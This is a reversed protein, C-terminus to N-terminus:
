VSSIILLKSFGSFGHFGNHNIKVCRRLPEVRRFGDRLWHDLKEEWAKGPTYEVGDLIVDSYRVEDPDTIERKLKLKPAFSGLPTEIRYGKAHGYWVHKETPHYRCSPGSSLSM